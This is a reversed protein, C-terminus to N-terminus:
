FNHLFSHQFLALWHINRRFWLSAVPKPYGRRSGAKFAAGSGEPGWEHTPLPRQAEMPVEVAAPLPAGVAETGIRGLRVPQVATLFLAPFQRASASSFWFLPSFSRLFYNALHCAEPLPFCGFGTVAM